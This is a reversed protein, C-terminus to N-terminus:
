DGINKYVKHPLSVEDVNVIIDVLGYESHKNWMDKETPVDDIIIQDVDGSMSLQRIMVFRPV